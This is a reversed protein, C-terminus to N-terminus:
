WKRGWARAPISSTKRTVSHLAWSTVSGTGTSRWPVALTTTAGQPVAGGGPSDTLPTTVRSRGEPLVGDRIEGLDISLGLIDGESRSREGCDFANTIDGQDQAVATTPAAIAAIAMATFALRLCIPSVGGPIYLALVSLM